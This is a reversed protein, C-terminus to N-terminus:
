QSQEGASHWGHWLGRIRNFYFRAKRGRFLLLSVSAGALTRLLRGRYYWVSYQHKRLFYGNGCAYRYARDLVQPNTIDSSRPHWIAIQPDYYGHANVNELRLALDPGEDAQWPTPCGVGMSEDFRLDGLAERRIFFVFEICLRHIKLRNMESPQQSHRALSDQGDDGYSRGTLFAYEPHNDFFRAARELADPPYACDDDPFTVIEGSAQDIGVNRARSAGQKSHLHRIRLNSSFKRIPLVLRDDENQDSVIIEFDQFTQDSLSRFLRELEQVRGKTPVILSFKM